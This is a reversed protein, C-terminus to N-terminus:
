QLSRPHESMELVCERLQVESELKSPETLLSWKKPPNKKNPKKKTQNASRVRVERIGANQVSM